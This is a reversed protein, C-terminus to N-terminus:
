LSFPGLRISTESHELSPTGASPATKPGRRPPSGPRRRAEGAPRTSPASRRACGRLEGCRTDLAGRLARRGNKPQSPEGIEFLRCSFFIPYWSIRVERSPPGLRAPDFINPGRTPGLQWAPGVYIAWCPFGDKVVWRTKFRLPVWVHDRKKRQNVKSGVCVSDNGLVFM